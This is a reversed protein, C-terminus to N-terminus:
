GRATVCDLLVQTLQRVTVLSELKCETWQKRLKQRKCADRIAVWQALCSDFLLGFVFLM